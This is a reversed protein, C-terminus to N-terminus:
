LSPPKSELTLKALKEFDRQRFAMVVERELSTLDEERKHSLPNDVKGLLYDPSVDFLDAIAGFLFLAPEKGGNEFKSYHSQDIGLAEAVEEQTKGRLTRATRLNEPSLGRKRAKKMNVQEYQYASDIM